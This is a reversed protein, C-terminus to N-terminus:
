FALVARVFGKISTITNLQNGKNFGQDWAYHGEDYETSSWYFDNAFRSGGNALATADITAKNLYMENLEYRSPLYWDSYTKGGETIRLENCIRAAYMGGDDGIAVHAAIIISTNAEGAYPGDGKAQTTGYTGANWRIYRNGKQDLDSKACVLGYEGTEDLWFVIGGQAFDGVQYKIQAEATVTVVFFAMTLILIKM